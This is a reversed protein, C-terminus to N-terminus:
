LRLSRIKHLFTIHVQKIKSELESIDPPLLLPQKFDVINDYIEQHDTSKVLAKLVPLLIDKRYNESFKAYIEPTNLNETGLKRRGWDTKLLELRKWTLLFFRWNKYNVILASSSQKAKRTNLSSLENSDDIENSDTEEIIGHVMSPTISLRSGRNSVIRPAASLPTVTATAPKSDIIGDIGKLSKSGLVLDEMMLMVGLMEGNAM